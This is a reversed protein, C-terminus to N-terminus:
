KTEEQKSSLEDIIKIMYDCHDKGYAKIYERKLNKIFKDFEAQASKLTSLKEECKPCYWLGDKIWVGTEIDFHGREDGCNLTGFEDKGEVKIRCGKEVESIEKTLM